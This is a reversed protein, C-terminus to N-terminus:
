VGRIAPCMQTFNIPRERREQKERVLELEGNTTTPHKTGLFENLLSLIYFRSIAETLSINHRDSSLWTYADQVFGTKYVVLPQLSRLLRGIWSGIQRLAPRLTHGDM